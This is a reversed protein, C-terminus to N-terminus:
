LYVIHGVRYGKSQELLEDVPIETICFGGPWYNDGQLFGCKVDIWRSLYMEGDEWVETKNEM